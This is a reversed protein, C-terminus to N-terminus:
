TTEDPDAVAGPPGDIPVTVVFETGQGVTSTVQIEGGHKKVIGYSISLGLGTGQGVAKTTYFPDFIKELVEAPMGKGSDRISVEAFSAGASDKQASGGSSQTQRLTIWIDGHGDIAQAANTLINMFVQNLQSAYCLVQPVAEFQTHLTVRNKLEGSLLRLTNEIGDQLSVRKIKAEELRSFNRLGVVIDRTRRAGEECSAILRPLDEVIYAFDSEEKAAKLAQQSKEAAAIIDLLRQSYDRLHSMNSYIFGIPNNLEHAVGAVLQGLSAMKASQILRTQTEKLEFYANELEKIKKELESKAQYTRRSMENFSEILVGLETDTTVPIEVAADQADTRQIAEVLEYVPRVIVRTAVVSTFILLIGIACIMTFFAYNVNRLVARAKQKSAGLGILFSSSGWQIPTTIFGFPESRLNLDFFTEQTPQVLSAFFDRQYLAFDDHSGAVLRGRSDFLIVELNVRNKLKVLYDQSINIIEEVYGAVRGNKAELRAISSLDLSNNPGNDVIFMENKTALTDKYSDSLFIGSSELARDERGGSTGGSVTEDSTMSAILQGERDFLRLTQVSSNRLSARVQSKAQETSNTLLFLILNSDSRYHARRAALYKEYDGVTASFERANARLRQILENDIAQEYKVLSYGTVFMMPVLSLLLFWIM